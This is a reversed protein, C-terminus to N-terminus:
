FIVTIQITFANYLMDPFLALRELPAPSFKKVVKKNSIEFIRQAMQKEPVDRFSHIM